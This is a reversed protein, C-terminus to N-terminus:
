SNNALLLRAMLVHTGPTTPMRDTVDGTFQDRWGITAASSASIHMWPVVGPLIQGFWHRADCSINVVYPQLVPHVLLGPVGPEPDIVLPDTTHPGNCLDQAGHLNAVAVQYAVTCAV